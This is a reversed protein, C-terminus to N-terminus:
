CVFELGMFELAEDLLWCFLTIKGSNLEVRSSYVSLISLELRNSKFHHVRLTITGFFLFFIMM